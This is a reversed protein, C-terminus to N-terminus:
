LTWERALMAFIVDDVWEGKSWLSEILHAEQRIYFEAVSLNARDIYNIATGLFALGIVIWRVRTPRNPHM